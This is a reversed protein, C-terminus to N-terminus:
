HLPAPDTALLTLEGGGRTMADRRQVGTPSTAIRALGHAAGIAVIPRRAGCTETTSEKDLQRGRLGAREPVAHGLRVVREAPPIGHPANAHIGGSM